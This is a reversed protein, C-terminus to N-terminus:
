LLSLATKLDSEDYGDSCWTKPIVRWMHVRCKKKVEVMMLKWDCVMMKM